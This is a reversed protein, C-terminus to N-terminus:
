KRPPRPRAVVDTVRQLVVRGDVEDDGSGGGAEDSVRIRNKDRWVFRPDFRGEFTAVVNMRQHLKGFLDALAADRVLIVGQDTEVRGPLEAKLRMYARCPQQASFDELSLDRAVNARVLVITGAYKEPHEYLECLTVKTRSARLGGASFAALTISMIMVVLRGGSICM